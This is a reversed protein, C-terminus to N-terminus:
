AEGVTMLLTSVIPLTGDIRRLPASQNVAIPVTAGSETASLSLPRNWDLPM